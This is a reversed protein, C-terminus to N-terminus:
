HFLLTASPFYVSTSSSRGSVSVSLKHSINIIIAKVETFTPREHPSPLTVYEWGNCSDTSRQRLCGSGLSSSYCHSSSTEMISSMGFDSVKVLIREPALADYSFVLINRAALNNHFINNATLEDMGEAEPALELVIVGRGDHDKSVRSRKDHIMIAPWKSVCVVGIFHGHIYRKRTTSVLLNAIKLTGFPVLHHLKDIIRHLSLSPVLNCNRKSFDSRSLPCPHNKSLWTEIAAREYTQGTASSGDVMTELTLSCIFSPLPEVFMTTITNEARSM